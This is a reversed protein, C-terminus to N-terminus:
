SNLNIEVESELICSNLLDQDDTPFNLRKFEELLFNMVEDRNVSSLAIQRTEWNVLNYIKVKM